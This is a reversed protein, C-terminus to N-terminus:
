VTKKLKEDKAIKGFVKEIAEEMTKDDPVTHLLLHILEQMEKDMTEKGKKIESGISLGLLLATM